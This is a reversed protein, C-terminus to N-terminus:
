QWEWRWARRAPWQPSSLRCSHKRGSVARCSLPPSPAPPRLRAPPSYAKLRPGKRCICQPPGRRSPNPECHPIPRHTQPPTPTECHTRVPYLTTRHDLITRRRTHSRNPFGGQRNQNTPASSELRPSRSCGATNVPFTSGTWHSRFQLNRRRWAPGASHLTGGVPRNM